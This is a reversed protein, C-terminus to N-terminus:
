PFSLQICLGDEQTEKAHFLNQLILLAWSVRANQERGYIISQAAHWALKKPASCSPVEESAM